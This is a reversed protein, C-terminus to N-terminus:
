QWAKYLVVAAVAGLGLVVLQADARTLGLKELPSGVICSMPILVLSIAIVALGPWRPPRHDQEDMAYAYGRLM